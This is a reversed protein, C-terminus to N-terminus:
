QAPGAVLAQAPKFLRRPESCARFEARVQSQKVSAFSFSGACQNAICANPWSAQGNSAVGNGAQALAIQNFEGGTSHRAAVRALFPNLCLGGHCAMDLPTSPQAALPVKALNAALSGNAFLVSRSMAIAGPRLELLLLSAVSAFGPGSLAPARAL